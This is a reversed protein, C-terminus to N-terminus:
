VIKEDSEERVDPGMNEQEHMNDPGEPYPYDNLPRLTIEVQKNKPILGRRNPIPVGRNPVPGGGNFPVRGERDSPVRGDRDFPVRGERDFPVRGEEDFPVRGEEDFPARGERDFPIQGLPAPGRRNFPSPVEGNFPAAGEGFSVAGKRVPGEVHNSNPRYGVLLNTLDRPTVDEGPANDDVGEVIKAFNQILTNFNEEAADNGIDVLDLPAMAYLQIKGGSYPLATIYDTTAVIIYIIIIQLYM